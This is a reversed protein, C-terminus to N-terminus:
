VGCNRMCLKARNDNAMNRKNSNSPSYLYKINMVQTISTVGCGRAYIYLLAPTHKLVTLWPRLALGRLSRVSLRRVLACSAFRFFRAFFAWLRTLRERGVSFVGSLSFLWCLRFYRAQSCLSLSPSLVFPLVGARLCRCLAMLGGTICSWCRDWILM